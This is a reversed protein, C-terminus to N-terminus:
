SQVPNLYVDFEITVVEGSKIAGFMASPPDVNYDKMNMEYSGTFRYSGDAQPIGEVPFTVEKVTGAINMNGSLNLTFSTLSDEGATEALEAANLNFMINPHDKEKLAGYIKRNMGGKGSEISNVPVTLSLSRVPATTTDGALNGPNMDVTLDMEEVSAEWDHISSTGKIVMTSNEGLSFQPSQAFAALPLLAFLLVLGPINISYKM